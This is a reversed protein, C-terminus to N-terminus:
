CTKLVLIMKFSKMELVTFGTKVATIYANYTLSTVLLSLSLRYFIERRSWVIKKGKKKKFSKLRQINRSALMGLTHYLGHLWGAFFGGGAEKTVNEMMEEIWSDSIIMGMDLSPPM